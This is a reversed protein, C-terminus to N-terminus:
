SPFCFLATNQYPKSLWLFIAKLLMLQAITCAGHSIWQADIKVGQRLFNKIQYLWCPFWFLCFSINVTFASTVQEWSLYASLCALVDENASQRIVLQMAKNIAGEFVFIDPWINTIFLILKVADPFGLFFFSLSCYLNKVYLLLCFICASMLHWYVRCCPLLSLLCLFWTFVAAWHPPIMSACGLGSILYHFPPSFLCGFSFDFVKGM